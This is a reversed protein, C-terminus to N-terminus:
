TTFVSGSTLHQGAWSLTQAYVGLEGPQGLDLAGSFAVHGGARTWCVQLLESLETYPEVCHVPVMPDNLSGVYLVPVRLEILRPGVSARDYYDMASEFGFRPAVVLHDFDRLQRVQRLESLPVPVERRKAVEGYIEFLNRLMYQRYPWRSPRDIVQCCSALDLPASVAIVARVRADLQPETAATLAVHGGLSFGMVLVEEFSALEPSALAAHLDDTLGAHFYDEGSRDAGRLSFRLAPFGAALAVQAAERAYGSDASGGLGHLIVVACKAESAGTPHDVWGSLQLKGLSSDEVTGRWPISPLEIHLRDRRMLDGITWIHGILSM